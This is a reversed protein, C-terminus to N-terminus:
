AAVIGTTATGCFPDLISIQHNEEAFLGDLNLIEKVLKISYAPTLRLRGHRGHEKNYKFTYDSRQKM